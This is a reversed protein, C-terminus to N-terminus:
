LFSRDNFDWRRQTRGRDKASLENLYVAETSFAIWPPQNECSKGYHVIEYDWQRFAVLVQPKITFCCLLVIMILM